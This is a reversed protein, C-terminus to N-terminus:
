RRLRPLLLSTKNTPLSCVLTTNQHNTYASLSSTLYRSSPVLSASIRLLLTLFRALPCSWATVMLRSASATETCTVCVCVCVCVCYVSIYRGTLVLGQTVSIKEVDERDTSKLSSSSIFASSHHFMKEEFSWFIERSSKLEGDEQM